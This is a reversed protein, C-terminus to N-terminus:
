LVTLVPYWIILEMKGAEAAVAVAAALEELFINVSPALFAVFPPRHPKTAPTAAPTAAVAATAVVAYM